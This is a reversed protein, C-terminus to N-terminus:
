THIAVSKLMDAPTHGKIYIHLHIHTYSCPYMHTCTHPLGSYLRLHQEDLMMWRAKASLIKWQGPAELYYKSVPHCLGPHTLWAICDCLLMGSLWLTISLVCSCRWPFSPQKWLGCVSTSDTQWWEVSPQFPVSFHLFVSWTSQTVSQISDNIQKQGAQQSEFKSVQDPIKVILEWLKVIWAWQGRQGGDEPGRSSSCASKVM